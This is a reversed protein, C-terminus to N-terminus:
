IHTGDADLEKIKGFRGVSVKKTGTNMELHYTNIGDIEGIGRIMVVGDSKYRKFLKVVQKGPKNLSMVFTAVNLVLLIGALFLLPSLYEVSFNSISSELYEM